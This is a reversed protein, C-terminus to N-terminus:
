EQFRGSGILTRIPGGDSQHLASLINGAKPMSGMTREDFILM